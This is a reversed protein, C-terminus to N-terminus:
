YRRIADISRIGDEGSTTYDIAILDGVGADAPFLGAPLYWVTRDSLTLVNTKSDFALVTGATSDAFAPAAAVLAVAAILFRM